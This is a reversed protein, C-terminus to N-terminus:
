IEEKHMFIGSHIDRNNSNSSTSNYIFQFKTFIQFINM